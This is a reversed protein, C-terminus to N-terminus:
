QVYKLVFDAKGDKDIEMLIYTPRRGEQRPYSLSGPNITIIGGSYDIDPKHTHGYMVINAGRAIAEQKLIRTDMSVYYSHGHTMFVRYKGIRFEEERPLDSFFDNNGAIVYKPCEVMAEIHDNGGEVDGLHLFLDIDGEQELVKDLNRHRGHTDSVILIKM